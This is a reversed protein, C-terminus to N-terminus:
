RDYKNPIHCVRYHGEGLYVGDCLARLQKLFQADHDYGNAPYRYEIQPWYILHDAVHVLNSTGAGKNHNAHALRRQWDEDVPDWVLDDFFGWMPMNARVLADHILQLHDGAFEDDTDLYIIYKGRARDIGANRVKHSWLRQKSIRLLRINDDPFRSWQDCTKECGDSVIILEWDTFVQARVSNVARHFKEIRNEAAKGYRGEYHDLYSPM